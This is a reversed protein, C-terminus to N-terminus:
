LVVNRGKEVYRVRKGLLSIDRVWLSAGKQYLSGWERKLFPAYGGTKVQFKSIEKLYGRLTVSKRESEGSRQVNLLPPSFWFCQLM